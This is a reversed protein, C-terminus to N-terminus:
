ASGPQPRASGTFADDGVNMLDSIPETETTEALRMLLGTLQEREQLSLPAFFEDETQHAAHEVQELRALGRKTIEVVHRRRDTTDRRRLALGEDELFNLLGVLITPDVDLIESLAQQSTAGDRRLEFLVATQRPNIEAPALATVYRRTAARAVQALLFGAKGGIIEREAAIRPTLSSAM